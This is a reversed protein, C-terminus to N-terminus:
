HYETFYNKDSQPIFHDKRQDSLTCINTVSAPPKETLLRVYLCGVRPTHANQTMIGYTVDTAKLKKISSWSGYTGLTHGAMNDKGCILGVLPPGADTIEEIAFAALLSATRLTTTM